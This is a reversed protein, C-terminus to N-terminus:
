AIRADPPRARARVVVTGAVYDHLARRTSALAGLFGIGLPLASAFYGVFRVASRAVGIPRGDLRLVRLHLALKGLTQGTASHLVVFYGVALAVSGVAFITAVLDAADVFPHGLLREAALVASSAAWVLAVNMAALVLADVVMAVLRAVFSARPPPPSPEARQPVATRSPEAAEAELMTPGSPRPDVPFAPREEERLVPPDDEFTFRDDDGPM